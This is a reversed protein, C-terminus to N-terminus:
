SPVASGDRCAAQAAAPGTPEARRAVSASGYVDLQVTCAARALADFRTLTRRLLPVDGARVAAGVQVGARQLRDLRGALLRAAPRRRSTGALADLVTLEAARLEDLVWGVLRDMELVAEAHTLSTDDDEAVLLRFHVLATTCRRHQRALADGPLTDQPM